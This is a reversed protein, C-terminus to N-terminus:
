KNLWSILENDCTTYFFYRRMSLTALRTALGPALFLTLATLGGTPRQWPKAPILITTIFLM